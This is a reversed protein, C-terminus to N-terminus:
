RKRMQFKKTFPKIVKIHTHTHTEKLFFIIYFSM